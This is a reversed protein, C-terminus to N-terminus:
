QVSEESGGSVPRAGAADPAPGCAAVRLDAFTGLAAPRCLSGPNVFVSSDVFAGTPTGSLSPFICVDPELLDPFDLAGSRAESVQAPDRPVAPFLSRQRLLLRHAEEIKKGQPPRLVIERLVPTLADASTLSVRLGNVQVHAPNPLFKVGLRRLPQLADGLGLPELATDLPPQPMPHFCLVEVPSPGQRLPALGRRLLPLLRREYFEEYPCPEDSGPLCTEGSLVKQNGADLFPGMLVLVQPRQSAAHELVQQELPAYDLGDRLCFPGAAVLMRVPRENKAAVPAPPIGPILEKAHFTTGMMGGSRGVVGVIQGPFAALSACDAVSLQVRAGKAAARSGELLLSRENLRGDLGECVIRGCMAVEAQSPVGVQGVAIGEGGPRAQLAAVIHGELTSLRRDRAATRDELSEDMWSYAGQRKGSWLAPDGLLRVEAPPLPAGKADEHKEDGSSGDSVSSKPTFRYQPRRVPPPSDLGAGGASRPGPGLGDAAAELRADGGRPLRGGRPGRCGGGRAPARWRQPPRPRPHEAGANTPGWVRPRGQAQGARRHVAEEAEGGEDGPVERVGPPAGRHDRRPRDRLVGPGGGRLRARRPA